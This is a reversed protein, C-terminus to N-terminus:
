DAYQRSLERAQTNLIDDSAPYPTDRALEAPDRMEYVHETGTALTNEDARRRLATTFDRETSVYEGVSYNFHPQFASRSAMTVTKIHCGFCTDPTFHTYGHTRTM